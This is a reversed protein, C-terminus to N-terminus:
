KEELENPLTVTKSIPLISVISSFFNAIASDNKFMIFLLTVDKDDSIFDVGVLLM